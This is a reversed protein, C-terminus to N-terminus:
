GKALVRIGGRGIFRAPCAIICLCHIGCDGEAREDQEELAVQTSLCDGEGIKWIAPFAASTDFQRATWDVIYGMSRVAWHCNARDHLDFPYRETDLEVEDEGWQAIDFSYHEIAGCLNLDDLVHMFGDSADQCSNDAGEPTDLHDGEIVLHFKEIADVLHIPLDEVRVFNVGTEKLKM